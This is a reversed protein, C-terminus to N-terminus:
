ASAEHGDDPGKTEHNYELTTQLEGYYYLDELWVHNKALMDCAERLLPDEISMYDMNLGSLYFPRMYPMYAGAYIDFYAKVLGKELGERIDSMFVQYEFSSANECSMDHEMIGDAYDPDIELRLVVLRTDMSGFYAAAIAANELCMRTADDCNDYEDDEPRYQRRVYLMDTLSCEWVSEEPDKFKSTIIQGAKEYSTGHLYIQPQKENSM